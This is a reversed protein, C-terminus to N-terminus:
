PAGLLRDLEEDTLDSLSKDPASPDPLTPRYADPIISARRVFGSALEDLQALARKDFTSKTPHPIAREMLELDPGNLVGLEWADKLQMQLENHATAMRGQNGITDVRGVGNDAVMQRYNQLALSVNRLADAKTKYEKIESASFQSAPNAAQDQDFALKDRDVGVNAMGVANRGMGVEFTKDIGYRDVDQGRRTTADEMQATQLDM